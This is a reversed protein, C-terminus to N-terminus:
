LRVKAIANQRFKFAVFPRVLEYLEVHSGKFRSMPLRRLSERQVGPLFDGPSLRARYADAENRGLTRWSEGNRLAHSPGPIPNLYGMFAM